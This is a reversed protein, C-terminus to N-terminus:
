EAVTWGEKAPDAPFDASGGAGPASKTWLVGDTKVIFSPWAAAREPVPFACLAFDSGWDIERGAITKMELFRYGECPQGGPGHAAVLEKAVPQFRRGARERPAGLEPCSAAYVLRGDGDWDERHFRAQAGAYARMLIMAQRGASDRAQDEWDAQASPLKILVALGLAAAALLACGCVPLLRLWRRPPKAESLETM